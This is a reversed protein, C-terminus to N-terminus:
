GVAVQRDSRLGTSFSDGVMVLRGNRRAIGKHASTMAAQPLELVLDVDVAAGGGCVVALVGALVVGGGAVVVVVGLVVEDVLVGAVPGFIALAVIAL